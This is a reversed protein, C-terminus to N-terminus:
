LHIAYLSSKLARLRVPEVIQDSEIAPNLVISMSNVPRSVSKTIRISQVFESLDFKNDPNQLQVKPKIFKITEM